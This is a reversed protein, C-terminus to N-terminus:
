TSHAVQRDLSVDPGTSCARWRAAPESYDDFRSTEALVEHFLRRAQRQADAGLTWASCRRPATDSAFMQPRTLTVRVARKLEPRWSPSSSRPGRARGCASPAASSPTSSACIARRSASCWASSIESTGFIRADQRLRHSATRTGHWRRRSHSWRTIISLRCSTSRTSRCPPTPLPRRPRVARRRCRRFLAGRTEAPVSRRAGGQFGHGAGRTRVRGPGANGRLAGARLHHRRGPRRTPRQRIEADHLPRFPSGPPAVEDRDSNDSRPLRPANEHTFVQLVGDLALADVADIQTITGKAMASSVVVGHVLDPVHYEAAYKAAGTVKARGDVRNASQGIHATTM